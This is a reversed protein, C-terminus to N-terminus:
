NVWVLTAPLTIPLVEAFSFSCMICSSFFLHLQHFDSAGFGMNCKWMFFGGWLWWSSPSEGLRTAKRRGVGAQEHGLVRENPHGSDALVGSLARGGTRKPCM